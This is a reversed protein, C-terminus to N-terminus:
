YIPKQDETGHKANPDMPQKMPQEDPPTPKGVNVDEGPQTSGASGSGGIGSGRSEESSGLGQFGSGGTGTSSSIRTAVNDIKNKVQFSVQVEDGAKLDTLKKGALGALDTSKEVRVPIVAGMHELYLTHSKSEVVTGMLQNGGHPEGVAIQGSAQGPVSGQQTAQQNLTSQDQNLGSGGIGSTSSGSSGTSSGTSSSTSGTTSPTSDQQALALGGFLAAGALLGAMKKMM